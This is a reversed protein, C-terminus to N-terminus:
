GKISNLKPYITVQFEGGTQGKYYTIKEIVAKWLDNKEKATLKKGRESRKEIKKKAVHIEPYEKENAKYSFSCSITKNRFIM